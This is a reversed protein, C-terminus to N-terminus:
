RRTVAVLAQQGAALHARLVPLSAKALGVVKANRGHGAETSAKAINVKHGAIQGKLYAVDFARGHLARLQRLQAQLDPTPRGPLALHLAAAVPKKQAYAKTHDRVLRQAYARTAAKSGRAAALRGAQIEFLDTAAAATFWARDQASVGSGQVAGGTAALAPAQAVAADAALGWSTSTVGVVLGLSLLGATLSRKM